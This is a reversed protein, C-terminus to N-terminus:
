SWEAQLVGILERENDALYLRDAATLERSLLARAKFVAKWSFLDTLRGLHSSLVNSYDGFVGAYVNEYEATLAKRQELGIGTLLRMAEDDRVRRKILAMGMQTSLHELNGYHLWGLAKALYLDPELKLKLDWQLSRGSIRESSVAAQADSHSSGRMQGARSSYEKRTDM